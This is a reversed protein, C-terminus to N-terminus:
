DFQFLLLGSRINDLLTAPLDYYDFKDNDPQWPNFLVSEPVHLDQMCEILLQFKSEGGGCSYKLGYRILQKSEIDKTIMVPISVYAYEALGWIRICLNLLEMTISVRFLIQHEHTAGFVIRWGRPHCNAKLGNADYFLPTYYDSSLHLALTVTDGYLTSLRQLQGADSVVRYIERFLDDVHGGGRVYVDDHVVYGAELDQM